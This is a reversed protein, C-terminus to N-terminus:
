EVVVTVSREYDRDTTDTNFLLVNLNDIAAASAAESAITDSHGCGEVADQGVM